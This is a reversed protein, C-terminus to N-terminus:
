WRDWHVIQHVPLRSVGGFRGIPYGVPIIAFPYVNPPLGLVTPLVSRDPVPWWGGPGPTARETM